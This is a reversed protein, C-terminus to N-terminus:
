LALGAKQFKIEIARAVDAFWNDFIPFAFWVFGIGFLVGTAIRMWSNFSGIADGAYFAVPLMNNTLSALWINSDRFGNGIGFLDSIFHTGGDIAMPLALLALVWLSPSGIRKRFIGYLLGTGFMGAYMWTSRECWAVKWGMEPNGTFQRLVLLDNTPQWATQIEALSYMTKSGFLFYARQPLQHCEFSYILYIANAAGTWGFKMFVPALWPLVMFLLFSLGFILRWQRSLQYTLRNLLVARSRARDPVVPVRDM